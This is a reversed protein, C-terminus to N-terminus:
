RSYSGLVPARNTSGYRVVSRSGHDLSTHVSVLIEPEPRQVRTVFILLTSSPVEDSCLVARAKLRPDQALIAASKGKRIKRCLPRDHKESPSTGESADASNRRATRAPSPSTM